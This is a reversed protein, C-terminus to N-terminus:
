RERQPRDRDSAHEIARPNAEEGAAEIDKIRNALRETRETLPLIDTRGEPTKPHADRGSPSTQEWPVDQISTRDQRIRERQDPTQGAQQRRELATLIESLEDLEAESFNDLHDIAEQFLAREDKATNPPTATVPAHEQSQALTVELHHIADDLQTREAILAEQRTTPQRIVPPPTLDDKPTTHEQRAHKADAVTPLREPSLDAWADRLVQAKIDLRRPPSHIEGHPDLIVFDRKDGKALVYGKEALAAKFSHGNDSRAYAEKLDHEVIKVSYVPEISKQRREIQHDQPSKDAVPREVAHAQHKELWAAVDARGEEKLRNIVARNHRGITLEHGFQHELTRAIKENRAWSHSMPVAKGTELDLRLYARHRHTRGAKCHEVEIFPQEELKFEQEYATWIHQWQEATVDRDPNISVHYLYQKCKLNLGATVELDDLAGHVDESLVYRSDTFFVTENDNANCLHDALQRAAGRSSSKIIM